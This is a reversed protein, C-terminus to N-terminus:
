QKTPLMVWDNWFTRWHRPLRMILTAAQKEVWGTDRHKKLRTYSAEPCEWRICQQLDYLRKNSDPFFVAVEHLASVASRIPPVPAAKALCLNLVHSSCHVHAAINITDRTHKQVGNNKGSMVAAGNYRCWQLPVM